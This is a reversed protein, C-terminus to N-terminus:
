AVGHMGNQDNTVTDLWSQALDLADQDTTLQSELVTDNDTWAEEADEICWARSDDNVYNICDYIAVDYNSDNQAINDEDAAVSGVLNTYADRADDIDAQDYAFAHGAVGFGGALTLSLISARVIQNFKIMKM